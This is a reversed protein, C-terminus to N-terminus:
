GSATPVPSRLGSDPKPRSRLFPIESRFLFDPSSDSTAAAKTNRCEPYTILMKSSCSETEQFFVFIKDTAKRQKSWTANTTLKRQFDVIIVLVKIASKLRYILASLAMTWVKRILVLTILRDGLKQQSKYCYVRLYLVSKINVRIYPWNEM